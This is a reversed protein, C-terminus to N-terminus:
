SIAEKFQNKFELVREITRKIEIAKEFSDAWFTYFISELVKSPDVTNVVSLSYITEKHHNYADLGSVYISQEGVCLVNMKSIEVTNKTVSIEFVTDNPILTTKM